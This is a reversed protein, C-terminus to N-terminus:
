IKSGYRDKFVILDKRKRTSSEDPYGIPIVSIVKKGEPIGLIHKVEGDHPAIWCTGLGLSHAALLINQSAAAGDEMPHNSLEPDVIVVIGIPAHGLFGGWPLVEAVRKKIGEDKLLIFEWPQSNNASPAWRAADLIKGVKEQEVPDRKYKRISRRTKIAELVEM